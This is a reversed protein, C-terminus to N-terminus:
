CKVVGKKTACKLNWLGIDECDQATWCPAAGGGWSVGRNRDIFENWGYEGADKDCTVFFNAIRDLLHKKDIGRIFRTARQGIHCFRVVSDGEIQLERAIFKYAWIAHQGLLLILRRPSGPKKDLASKLYTNSTIDSKKIQLSSDYINVSANVIRVNRLCVSGYKENDIERMKEFIRCLRTGTEGAAPFGLAEENEGPCALVVVVRSDIGPQYVHSVGHCSNEVGSHPHLRCSM